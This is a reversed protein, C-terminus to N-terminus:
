TLRLPFGQFGEAQSRISGTRLDNTVLVRGDEAALGLVDPDLMRDPIVGFAPRYDISSDRRQLGLGIDPDLNADAQFRVKVCTESFLERSRVVSPKKCVPSEFAILYPFRHLASRRIQPSREGTGPWRPFTGPASAIRNVSASIETVFEDGLGIRREEYWLVASRLEARAEPHLEIRM